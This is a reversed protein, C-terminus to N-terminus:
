IKFTNEASSSLSNPLKHTIYWVLLKFSKSQYIKSCGLGFHNCFFTFIIQISNKLKFVFETNKYPKFKILFYIHM